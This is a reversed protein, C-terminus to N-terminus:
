VRRKPRPALSRDITRMRARVARQVLVVPIRTGVPFQITGVSTKYKKLGPVRDVERGWAYVSVHKSFGAFYALRGAYGPARYEYFPIGYSVYERAKPAATRIAARLQKLM